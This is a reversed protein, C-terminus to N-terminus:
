YSGSAKCQVVSWECGATGEGGYRRSRASVAAQGEDAVLRFRAILRIDEMKTSDPAHM